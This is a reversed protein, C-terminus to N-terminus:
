HNSCENIATDMGRINGDQIPDRMIIQNLYDNGVM